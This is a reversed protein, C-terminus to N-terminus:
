TDSKKVFVCPSDDSSNYGKKHLFESLRNYWTRGSQKLGYLSKKLKVCYINRDANSNPIPIGESVKMYIYIYIYIYIYSDPSGYLHARVADMLQM